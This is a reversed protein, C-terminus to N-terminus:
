IWSQENKAYKFRNHSWLYLEPQRRISEELSKFFITTLDFDPLSQPNEHMKVFTTEYYGRKVRKVDVYFADMGYRKTIKETGTLVPVEQELFHSYHRIEKKRPSQDAIYGVISIKQNQIQGTVWRLTEKMEINAAGFRIRNEYMLRDVPKNRLKHYIQGSIVGENLFLPMSSIWEWNGFHGLYLSISKKEVFLQNLEDINVFKMRRRIEKESITATKCTEFIIDLFFRYFKKEIKKIEDINKEPFSTTLNKRVIKRRYRVLYYFPYFLGDSLIYMVPFPIRSLLKWSTKLLFYKM